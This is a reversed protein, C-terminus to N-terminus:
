VIICRSTYSNDLPLPPIQNVTVIEIVVEKKIHELFTRIFEETDTGNYMFAHTTRKKNLHGIQHQGINLKCHDTYTHFVLKDKKVTKSKGDISYIIKDDEIEISKLVDILDENVLGSFEFPDSNFKDLQLAEALVAIRSTDFM